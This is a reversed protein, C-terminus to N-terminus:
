EPQSGESQNNLLLCNSSCGSHVGMLVGSGRGMNSGQHDATNVFFATRHLRHRGVEPDTLAGDALEALVADADFPNHGVIAATAM